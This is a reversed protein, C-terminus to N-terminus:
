GIGTVSFHGIKPIEVVTLLIDTEADFLETLLVVIANKFQQFM